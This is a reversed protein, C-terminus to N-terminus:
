AWRRVIEACKQAPTLVKEGLFNNLMALDDMNNAKGESIVKELVGEETSFHPVVETPPKDPFPMVRNGDLPRPVGYIEGNEEIIKEDYIGLKEAVQKDLKRFESLEM